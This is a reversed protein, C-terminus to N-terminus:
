RYTSSVPVQVTVRQGRTVPSGRLLKADGGACDLKVRINDPDDKLGVQDIEHHHVCHSLLPLVNYSFELPLPVHWM